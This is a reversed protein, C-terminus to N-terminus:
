QEEVTGNKVHLVKANKIVNYETLDHLDISTIFTQLPRDKILQILFLRRESDLESLVDDLLLPPYEQDKERIIELQTIKLALVATRQQGQSGYIGLDILDNMIFYDDRHPGVTTIKLRCDKEKASYLKQDFVKQIEERDETYTTLINSNYKLKLTEKNKTILQHITKVKQNILQLTKIRYWIILSGLELIKQDWISLHQNLNDKRKETKLLINRQFLIRNYDKLHQEYVPNLTIIVEDLFKRRIAPSSKIIQLDEPAFIVPNFRARLWSKQQYKKNVKIIKKTKKALFNLSDINQLLINIQFQKRDKNAEGLLFSQKEKWNILNYDDKTRYSGGRLLTYISEIVNTKGQANNGILINLSTHFNISTDLFNRFNILKIKNVNM